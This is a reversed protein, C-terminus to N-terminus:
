KPISYNIIGSRTLQGTADSLETEKFDVWENDRLYSWQVHAEPKKVTPNSSGEAMQFLLSLNQPPKLDKIGLYVEGEFSYKPLLPATSKSLGATKYGFPTLWYMRTKEEGL